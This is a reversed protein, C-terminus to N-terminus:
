PANRRPMPVAVRFRQVGSSAVVQSQTRAEVRWLLTKGPLCRAVVAAPLAIHDQDTESKWVLTRDVELLEVAYGTAGAVGKWRLEPPAAALDGTPAIADLRVTRYIGAPDAPSLSPERTEMWFGAGIALVVAAAAAWGYRATRRRPEFATVNAAGDLRRHLEAAIRSGEALEEASAHDDLFSHFLALEAECRPCTAVHARQADTLPEGIREVDICDPTAALADRWDDRTTM